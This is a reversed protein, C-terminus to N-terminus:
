DLMDIYAAPLPNQLNLSQTITQLEAQAQDPSNQTLLSELEVFGSGVATDKLTDVKDLHIRTSNYIYVHRTKSLERPKGLAHTLTALLSDPNPIPTILYDSTTPAAADPRRYAILEAAEHGNILRLKLRAHPADFFFDHQTIIGRDTAGLKKVAAEVAALDNCRFKQELNKM